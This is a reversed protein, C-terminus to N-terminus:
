PTAGIIAIDRNLNDQVGQLRQQEVALSAQACATRDAVTADPSTVSATCVPSTAPTGPAPLQNGWNPTRSPSSCWQATTGVINIPSSTFLAAANQNSPLELPNIIYYTAPTQPVNSSQAEVEPM